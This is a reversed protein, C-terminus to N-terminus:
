KHERRADAFATMLAVMSRKMQAPLRTWVAMLRPALDDAQFAAFAAEMQRGAATPKPKPGPASEFLWAPTVQLVDCIQMLRSSGIRNVGREYKQVQQFTVGIREGLETQSMDLMTRRM